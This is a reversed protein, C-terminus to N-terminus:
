EGRNEEMRERERRQCEVNWRQTANVVLGDDIRVPAPAFCPNAVISDKLRHAIRETNRNLHLFSLCAAVGGDKRPVCSFLIGGAWEGVWWHRLGSM